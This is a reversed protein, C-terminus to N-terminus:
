LQPTWDVTFRFRAAPAPIWTRVTSPLVPLAEPAYVSEYMRGQIWARTAAGEL